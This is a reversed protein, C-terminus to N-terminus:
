SIKDGAFVDYTELGPANRIEAALEPDAGFYSSHMEFPITYYWDRTTPWMAQPTLGSRESVHKLVLAWQDRVAALSAKFLLHVGQGIGELRRVGRVHDFTGFGEWFACICEQKGGSHRMLIDFLIEMMELTIEGEYPAAIGGYGRRTDYGSMKMPSPVISRWATQGDMQRDNEKAVDCWRVPTARKRDEFDDVAMTEEPTRAVGEWLWGPQCIRVYNELGSPVVNHLTRHPGICQNSVWAAPDDISTINEYILLPNM